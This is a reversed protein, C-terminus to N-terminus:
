VISLIDLISQLKTYCVIYVTVDFDMNSEHQYSMSPIINWISSLTLTPHSNFNLVNLVNAKYEQGIEM